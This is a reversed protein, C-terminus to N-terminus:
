CDILIMPHQVKTRVFYYHGSLVFCTDIM